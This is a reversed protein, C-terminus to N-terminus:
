SSLLIQALSIIEINWCFLRPGNMEHISIQKCFFVRLTWLSSCEAAEESGGDSVESQRENWWISLRAFRSAPRVRPVILSRRTGGLLVPSTWTRGPCTM